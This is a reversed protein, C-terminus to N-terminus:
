HPADLVAVSWAEAPAEFLAKTKVWTGRFLESHRYQDLAAESAWISLTFLVHPQDTSRLLEMYMCGDFARISDKSSEFVENVFTEVADPRFTMKVIRKIM